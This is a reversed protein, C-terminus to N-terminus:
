IISHCLTTSSYLFTVISPIFRIGRSDFRCLYSGTIMEYIMFIISASLKQCRLVNSYTMLSRWFMHVSPIRSNSICMLLTCIIVFVVIFHISYLNDAQATNTLIFVLCIDLSFFACLLFTLVFRFVVCRVFISSSNLVMFLLEMVLFSYTSAAIIHQSDVFSKM